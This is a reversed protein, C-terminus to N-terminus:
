AIGRAALLERLAELDADSAEALLDQAKEAVTRKVRPQRERTKEAFVEPDFVYNAYGVLADDNELAKIALDHQTATAKEIAEQIPNTVKDAVAELATVQDGFLEDLQDPATDRVIIYYQVYRVVSQRPRNGIEARTAAAAPSVTETTTDQKPAM